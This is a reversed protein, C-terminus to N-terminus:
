NKMTCKIFLFLHVREKATDQKINLKLEFLSCVFM